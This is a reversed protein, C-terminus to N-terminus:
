IEEGYIDKIDQIEQKTLKRLGERATFMNMATLFALNWDIEPRGAALLEADRVYKNIKKVKSM